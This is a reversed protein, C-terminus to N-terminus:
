TKDDFSIWVTQTGHILDQIIERTIKDTIENKAEARVKKPVNEIQSLFSPIPCSEMSSFLLFM